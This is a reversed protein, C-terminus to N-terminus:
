KRESTSGNSNKCNVIILGDAINEQTRVETINISGPFTQLTKLDVPRKDCFAKALLTNGHLIETWFAM